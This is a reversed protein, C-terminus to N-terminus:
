FRLNLQNKISFQGCNKISPPIKSIPIADNPKETECAVAGPWAIDSVSAKWIRTATRPKASTIPPM